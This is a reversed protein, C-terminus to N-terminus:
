KETIFYSIPFGSRLFDEASYYTHSLCSIDSLSPVEFLNYKLSNPLKRLSYSFSSFHRIEDFLKCMQIKENKRM